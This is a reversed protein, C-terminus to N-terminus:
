QRIGREGRLPVLDIRGLKILDVLLVRRSVILLTLMGATYGVATAVAAGVIGFHPVLLLNMAVNALLVALYQMTQLGPRGSQLLLNDFPLYGSWLWAGGLLIALVPAGASLGREPLLVVTVVLFAAFVLVALALAMPYAFRRTTRLLQFLEEWRHQHTFQVLLPNFNNRVVVFIAFFGDLLMAAFSYIGVDKDSLLVGLLLVDVRSNFEILLGAGLGHSGFAVHRRLWALSPPRIEFGARRAAVNLLLVLLVALEGVLFGVALDEARGTLLASYAIWALIGVGRLAQVLAFFRMQRLGNAVALLIKNIPFIALALAVWTLGDAVAASDFVLHAYPKLLWTTLCAACGLLLGLLLAATAMTGVEGRDREFESSHKLASYHVGWVAIQSLVIYLAYAVNFAGLSAAGFRFAILLNIAVGSAAVIAFSAANWAIGSTLPDSAKSKILDVLGM